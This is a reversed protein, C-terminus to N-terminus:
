VACHSDAVSNEHLPLFSPLSFSFGGETGAGAVGGALLFKMATDGGVHIDDAVEQEDREDGGGGKLSAEQKPALASQM